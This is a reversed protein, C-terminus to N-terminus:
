TGRWTCGSMEIQNTWLELILLPESPDRAMYVLKIHSVFLLGFSKGWKHFIHKRHWTANLVLRIDLMCQSKPMTLQSRKPSSSQMIGLIKEWKNEVWSSCCLFYEYILSIILSLTAVLGLFPLAKVQMYIEAYMATLGVLHAMFDLISSTFFISRILAQFSSTKAIHWSKNAVDSLEQFSETGEWRDRLTQRGKRRHDWCHKDFEEKSYSRLM